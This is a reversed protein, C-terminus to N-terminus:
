DAMRPRQAAEWCICANPLSMMPCKEEIDDQARSKYWIGKYSNHRPFSQPRGISNQSRM